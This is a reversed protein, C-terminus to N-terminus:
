IGKLGFQNELLRFRADQELRATDGLTTLNPNTLSSPYFGPIVGVLTQTPLQNLRLTDDQFYNKQRRYDLRHYLQFGQDLVFQQYAHWDNRIERGYAATLRPDGDYDYRNVVQSGDGGLTAGPLVGGQEALEHNMNIFHLLLTYKENRSQYNTHGLFGWNQALLRDTSNGSNLIGGFQKQSTFRQVAFGANFRPNINQTFDFRLINQNRGGLALYMDSFPSKTNFYKVAGTQYAYPAFVSYGTQAGIETPVPVFVPRMPTGLNGLDQYQNQNRQVYLFRHVDDMTTDVTYLKRRNNLVDDELVYRTSKPGYIVKTSDDIGGQGSSGPTSTFAGPRSTQGGFGGPFGGPFQQARGLTSFLGGALLLFLFRQNM